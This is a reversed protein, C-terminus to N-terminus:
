PSVAWVQLKGWFQFARLLPRSLKRWITYLSVPKILGIAYARNEMYTERM